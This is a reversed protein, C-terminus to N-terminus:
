RRFTKNVLEIKLKCYPQGDEAYELQPCTEQECQTITQNFCDSYKFAKQKQDQKTEKSKWGALFGFIAGYTWGIYSGLEAALEPSGSGVFIVIAFIIVVLSVLLAIAIKMKKRM